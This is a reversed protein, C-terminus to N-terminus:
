VTRARSRRRVVTEIVIFTLALAWFWRGDSGTGGATTAEMVPREWSRVSDDPTFPAAREEVSPTADLAHVVSQVFSAAALTGPQTGTFLLLREESWAVVLASDAVLQQVVGAVWPETAPRSARLLEDRQEYGPHVIAVPRGRPPTVANVALAATLAASARARDREGALMEIDWTPAARSAGQVWEASTRDDVIKTHVSVPRVGRWADVPGDTGPPAMVRVLRLGIDAPLASRDNAEFAGRQFDSVVVLERAGRQESLWAVVGGLVRSPAATEIITATAADAALVAALGRASDLVPRVSESTDVVIARAVNRQAGAVREPTSLWPQALAAVAAAIVGARILLLAMDSLRTRRSTVRQADGLFRLSPFRRIKATHVTLLHIVVPVAVLGLGLWAWPNQWIM